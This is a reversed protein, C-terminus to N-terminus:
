TQLNKKKDELFLVAQSLLHVNDCMLHVTSVINMNDTVKCHHKRHKLESYSSCISNERTGVFMKETGLRARTGRIYLISFFSM